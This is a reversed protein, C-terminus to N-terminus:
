EEVESIDTSNDVAMLVLAGERLNKTAMDAESTCYAFDLKEAEATAEGIKKEYDPVNIDLSEGESVKCWDSAAGEAAIRRYAAWGKSVTTDGTADAVFVYSNVPAETESLALLEEYNAVNAATQYKSLDLQSAPVKGDAGLTAVGAAVGKESSQIASSILRAQEATLHISANGIHAEVTTGDSASIDSARLDCPVFKEGRKYGLQVFNKEAM